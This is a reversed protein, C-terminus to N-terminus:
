FSINFFELVGTLILLVGFLKMWKNFNLKIKGQGLITPKISYGTVLSIIGFAITSLTNWDIEM